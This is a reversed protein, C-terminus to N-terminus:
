DFSEPFFYRNYEAKNLPFVIEGRFVIGKCPGNTETETM